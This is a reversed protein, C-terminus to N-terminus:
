SVTWSWRSCMSSSSRAWSVLDRLASKGGRGYSGGAGGCRREPRRRREGFGEFIWFGEVPWMARQTDQGIIGLSVRPLKSVELLHALQERMAGVGAVRSRLAAEELVFAFTHDGRKRRLGLLRERSARSGDNAAEAVM